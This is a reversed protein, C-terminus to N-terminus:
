GEMERHMTAVIAQAEATTMPQYRNLMGHVVDRPVGHVNRKTCQDADWAWPTTPEILIVTSGLRAALRFYEEMDRRTIHTNDVVICPWSDAADAIRRRADDHAQRIQSRDHRYVGDEGVFYDDASVVAGYNEAALKEALTSKGSGPLGRLMLLLPGAYGCPCPLRYGCLECFGVM